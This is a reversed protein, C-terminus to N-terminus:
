LPKITDKLRLYRKWVSIPVGTLDVLTQQANESTRIDYVM